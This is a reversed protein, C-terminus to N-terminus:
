NIKIQPLSDPVAVWPMKQVSSPDFRVISEKESVLKKTNKKNKLIIYALVLAGGVLLIKKNATM